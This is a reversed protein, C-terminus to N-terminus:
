DYTGTGVAEERVKLDKIWTDTAAKALYKAKMLGVRKNSANFVHSWKIVMGTASECLSKIEIQYKYEDWNAPEVNPDEMYKSIWGLVNQNLYDSELNLRIRSYGQNKMFEVAKASGLIMVPKIKPPRNEDLVGSLSIQQDNTSWIGYGAVEITRGTGTPYQSVCAAVYVEYFGDEDCATMENAEPVPKNEEVMSELPAPLSLHCSSNPNVAIEPHEPEYEEEEEVGLSDSSSSREEEDEEGEDDTCSSNVLDSGMQVVNPSISGVAVADNNGRANGFHEERADPGTPYPTRYRGRFNYREGYNDRPIRNLNPYRDPPPVISTRLVFELPPSHHEQFNAPPPPSSEPYYQVVDQVPGRFMQVGHFQPPGGNHRGVNNYAPSPSQYGRQRDYPRYPHPRLHPPCMSGQPPPHYPPGCGRGEIFRPRVDNPPFRCPFNPEQHYSRFPIFVPPPSHSVHPRFDNNPSRNSSQM